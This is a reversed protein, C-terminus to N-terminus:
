HRDNLSWKEVARSGAPSNIFFLDENVVGSRNIVTLKVAKPMLDSVRISVRSLATEITTPSVCSVACTTSFVKGVGSIAPAWRKPPTARPNLCRNSLGHIAASPTNLTRSRM